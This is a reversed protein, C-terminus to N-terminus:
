PSTSPTALPTTEGAAGTTEGAAGTTEGNNSPACAVLGLMMVMALLFAILKKMINM